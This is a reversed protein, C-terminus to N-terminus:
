AGGPPADRVGSVDFSEIPETKGKITAPPLATADVVTEGAAELTSRSVVIKGAAAGAGLHWAVNVCDGIVSYQRKIESGLDGAVAEGTNIGIGVRALLPNRGPDQARLERQMRVAAQVARLAHDPQPLPAGFVGLVADGIFKDVYGGRQQIHRTVIEFYENIAEVVREPTTAEAYPTFGRIDTFVVTVQMCRGGLLDGEPHAMVMELVEPSVYSGFSKAMVLKKWLERSMHNFASTLDGFEDGRVREPRHSFTGRVIQQAALVL